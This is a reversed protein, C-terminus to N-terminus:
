WRAARPPPPSLPVAADAAATTTTATTATTATTTAATATPAADAAMLSPPSPGLSLSDGLGRGGGGGGGGPEVDAGSLVTGYGFEVVWRELAPSFGAIRSRVRGGASGYIADFIAAGKAAAAGDAAVAGVGGAAAAGVAAAASASTVESSSAPSAPATAAAAGAGGGDVRGRGGPVLGAQEVAAAAHLVRPFGAFVVTQVLALEYAAAARAPPVAALAAVVAPVNTGAAVHGAALAAARLWPSLSPPAAPLGSFLAALAPTLPTAM